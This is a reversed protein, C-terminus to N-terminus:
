LGICSYNRAIFRGINLELGNGCSYEVILLRTIICRLIWTRAITSGLFVVIRRLIVCGWTTSMLSVVSRGLVIHGLNGWLSVRGLISTNGRWSWRALTQRSAGCFLGRERSTWITTENDSATRDHWSFTCRNIVM